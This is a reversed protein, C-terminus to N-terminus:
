MIKFFKLVVAAGNNPVCAVPGPRVPFWARHSDINVLDAEPRTVATPHANVRVMDVLDSLIAFAVLRSQVTVMPNIEDLDGLFHQLLDAIGVTLETFSIVEHRTERRLHRMHAYTFCMKDM